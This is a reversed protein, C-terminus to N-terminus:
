KSCHQPDMVNQYPDPDSSGYPDPSTKDTVKELHGSFFNKQKNSKLAVNVDTKFSLFTVFFDCFM